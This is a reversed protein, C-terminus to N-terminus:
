KAKSAYPFHLPFSSIYIGVSDKASETEYILLGIAKRSTANLLIECNKAMSWRFAVGVHLSAFHHLIRLVNGGEGVM